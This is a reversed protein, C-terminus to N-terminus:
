SVQCKGFMARLAMGRERERLMVRRHGLPENVGEGGGRALLKLYLPILGQIAMSLIYVQYPSLLPLVRM